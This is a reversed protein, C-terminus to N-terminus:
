RRSLLSPQIGLIRLLPAAIFISSYTGILTGFIMALIFSSLVLGGVLYLALLALLTTVSTIVTRSLTDNISMDLIETIPKKNYKKLNERIRDYVVVTDNLSYGVMTLIAAISSLSFELKLFAFIGLTLIVDHLTTALAGVAFRWEFRFWIYIMISFLSVIIAIASTKALEHSVTPGVVEQRRFEYDSDMVKRVQSLKSNESNRNKKQNEIRILVENSAGFSQVQVDGLNLEEMWRRIEGLDAQGTKAKYEILTGGRFDIGYNLNLIFFALISGIIFFTSLFLSLHHFFIFRISTKDPLMKLFRYPLRKPRKWHIWFFVMLRTLTFASFFSTMVGIALTISFGKIPGSGFYFLIFASILTTMNSDLITRMAERFGVDIAQILSRHGRKEERIREYILVNADVAMGITLVIGAIGPLTLTAGLASLIGIILTMNAILALNAILGLKGYSLIMFIIVLLIAILSAKKGAIISDAGLTPGVIREEVFTIKTPLAGSRMLVALNNASETTFNGSIQGVGQCIPAELVPASIVKEDLVIAFRDGIKMSSIRCFRQAAKTNFRFLVLPENTKPHFGLKADELNEGNIEVKKRVLVYAEQHFDYTSLIESDLPPGNKFADRVNMTENVMRFTLKATTGILKKLQKPDNFGPVQISIRDVGQKQILPEITGLADIRHRIIEISRSVASMLRQDIGSETLSYDLIFSSPERFEVEVPGISSVPNLLNALRKKAIEMDSENILQIRVCDDKASLSQYGIRKGQTSDLLTRRIDHLLTELREKILNKRDIKIQLYVGGQLDLGLSLQNKPFWKPLVNLTSKSFLNPSAFLIGIMVLIIISSMKWQSFHLM